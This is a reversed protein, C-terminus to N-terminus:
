LRLIYGAPRLRDRFSSPPRAPGPGGVRGGCASQDRVFRRGPAPQSTTTAAARAGTGCRAREGVGFSATALHWRTSVRLPRFVFFRPDQGFTSAHGRRAIEDPLDEFNSARRRLVITSDHGARSRAQPPRGGERGPPGPAGDALAPVVGVRHPWGLVQRGTFYVNQVDGDGVQVGKAHRAPSRPHPRSPSPELVPGRVIVTQRYPGPSCRPKGGGPAGVM